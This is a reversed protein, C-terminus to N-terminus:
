EVEARGNSLVVANNRDPVLTRFSVTSGQKWMETRLTEGPFVPATFRVELSTLRSADYDCLTKLLAHGAVGLTLLGHLIPKPFGVRRAHEPDSHLPNLDGTLRYILAAQPITPLDCVFHPAGAPLPHPTRLPGAPGGFGGDGRCFRTAELTAIRDGTEVDYIEQATTILAGGGAGKDIVSALRAKGIFRGQRPLPKFLRFRHEGNVSKSGFGTGSHQVWAHPTCLVSIMTPLAILGEECVFRLQKPDLPDVGLGVGLAYIITDRQTITQEVDAIKYDLLRQYSAYDVAM